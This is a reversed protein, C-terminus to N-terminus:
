PLLISPLYNQPHHYLLVEQVISLKKRDVFHVLSQLHRQLSFLFLSLVITVVSLVITIYECDIIGSKTHGEGCLNGSVSTLSTKESSDFSSNLWRIGLQCCWSLKAAAFRKADSAMLTAMLTTWGVRVLSCYCIRSYLFFHKESNLEEQCHKCRCQRKSGHACM